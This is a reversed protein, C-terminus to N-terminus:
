EDDGADFGFVRFVLQAAGARIPHDRRILNARRVHHLAGQPRRDDVENLEGGTGPMEIQRHLLHVNAVFRV